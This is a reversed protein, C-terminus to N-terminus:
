IAIKEIHRKEIAEVIDPHDVAAVIIHDYDKKASVLIDLLSNLTEADLVSLEDLMLIKSGTLQNLMDMVIFLMYAKEGGSLSSYPLPGNGNDMLIQMGDENEFVFKLSPMLKSATNNCIEEFVGLYYNIIGKKIEGKSDLAKVLTDLDEIQVTLEEVEKLLSLYQEFDNILKLENNLLAKATGFDKVEEGEPMEPKLPANKELQAIQNILVTKQGYLRIQEDLASIKSETDFISKKIKEIEGTQVLISDKLVTILKELDEKAKSKDTTCVIKDSIPCYSHGLNELTTEHGNLSQYLGNLVSTANILSKNLTEKDAALKDRLSEDPKSVSLADAKEKTEKLLENHKNFTDLATEYARKKALYVQNKSEADVLGQLEKEVVDKEREPKVQPLNELLVNKKQLLAKKEKREARCFVDLEELKSMGFKEDPVQSEILEVVGLTPASLYTIVKEKTLEEPIYSLIFDGLEHPKMSSVLESSSAIKLADLPIGICNEISENMSKQTTYADGNIRCRNPKDRREEREFDYVDGSISEVSILVRAEDAKKNILECDPKQGTLGYRIAHMLTTKGLGNKGILACIDPFEYVRHGTLGMFNTTEIKKIKM